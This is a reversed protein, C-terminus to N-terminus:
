VLRKRKRVAWEVGVALVFIVFLAPRDWVDRWQSTALTLPKGRAALEDVLRYANAYFYYKGGADATAASLRRLLSLDAQPDELERQESIAQFSVADEGVSKGSRVAEARATYEGAVQPVYEARFYGQERSFTMQLTKAREAEPQMDGEAPTEVRLDIRADRVPNGEGDNLHAQISVSEGVGVRDKSLTVWFKEERGEEIGGSWLVLQRWFRKHQDQSDAETFFWRFTTDTLVCAARGAGSRQVALLPLGEADRALVEAGLKPQVGTAAGSLPPMQKWRALTEAADKGLTLIPHSAHDVEVQWRREGADYQWEQPLHVPLVDRLVTGGFGASGVSEKGALLILGKGDEQVSRKLSDFDGGMFCLASVDGLIVVDYKAWDTHQQSLKRRGAVVIRKVNIQEAGQLALAIFKSEPRLADFYGVRLGGRLVKVFASRVNNDLLIEDEVQEARMTLKIQGVKDADVEFEVLVVEEDHSIHVTMFQLKQGPLDLRVRVSLGSCGRALIRGRVPFTSFVYVNRPVELSLIRVDRMTSGTQERGVGITYLPIGHEALAAAVDLPDPPGLNHSGDGVLVVGECQGGPAHKLAEELAVGYASYNAATGDPSQGVLLERAFGLTTVDYSEGLAKLGRTEDNLIQEAAELRSVGDPTDQIDSMSRSRDVLVILPRKEVSYTTTEMTPRLLCILLAALAILRLAVLLVKTRRPLPHTTRRYAWLALVFLSLALLVLVWGDLGSRFIVRTEEM